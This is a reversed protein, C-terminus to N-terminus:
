ISSDKKLYDNLWFYDKNKFDCVFISRNYINFIKLIFPRRVNSYIIVTSYNIKLYTTEYVSNIQLINNNLKIHRIRDSIYSNLLKVGFKNCLQNYINSGYSFDYTKMSYLNELVKYLVYSKNKYIYRYENKIIFLYYKNM